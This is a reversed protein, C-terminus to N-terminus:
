KKKAFMAMLNMQKGSKKPKQIEEVSKVINIEENQSKQFFNKINECKETSSIYLIPTKTRTLSIKTNKLSKSIKIYLNDTSEKINKNNHLCEITM